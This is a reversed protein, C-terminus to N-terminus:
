PSCQSPVTMGCIVWVDFFSEATRSVGMLFGLLTAAVLAISFSFAIRTLTIAVDHWIAGDVMENWLVEAVIHPAPMISKPLVVSGLYWLLVLSLASVLKIFRDGMADIATAFIGVRNASATRGYAAGADGKAEDHGAVAALTSPQLAAATSTAVALPQAPM